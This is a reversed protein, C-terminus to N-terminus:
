TERSSIMPDYFSSWTQNPNSWKKWEPTTHGKNQLFFIRNVKDPFTWPCM